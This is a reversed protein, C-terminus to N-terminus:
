QAAGPAGEGIVVEDGAELGKVIAVDTDNRVGLTV